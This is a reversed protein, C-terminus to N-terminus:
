EVDRVCRINQTAGWYNSYIGNGAVSATTLSLNGSNDVGRAGGIVEFGYRVRGDFPSRNVNGTTTYWKFRTRAYYGLYQRADRDYTPFDTILGEVSSAQNAGNLALFMLERQNPVRWGQGHETRCLSINSSGHVNRDSLKGADEAAYEMKTYVRNEGDFQNHVGLEGSTATPRTANSNLYTFDVTHDNLTWYNQPRRTTSLYSQGERSREINGVNRVCRYHYRVPNRLVNGNQQRWQETSNADSISFGEEAWVTIVYGDDSNYAASSAKEDSKYTSSYYHTIEWTSNDPMLRSETSLAGEGIYMAGLQNVAPMYWKIEDETIQGDRNVDRNRQMCAIYANRYRTNMGIYTEDNIDKYGNDAYNIYTSWGNNTGVWTGKENEEVDRLFGWMYLTNTLGDRYDRSNNVPTGMTLYVDGNESRTENVTELGMCSTLSTVSPDTNYFTQISKQNIVYAADIINSEGDASAHIDCLLHLTRDPQNM